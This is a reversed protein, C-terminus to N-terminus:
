RARKVKEVIQSRLKLINEKVLEPLPQTLKGERKWKEIFPELSSRHRKMNGIYVEHSGRKKVIVKIVKDGKQTYFALHEEPKQKSKQKALAKAHANAPLGKSEAFTEGEDSLEEESFEGGTLEPNDYVDTSEKKKKAM